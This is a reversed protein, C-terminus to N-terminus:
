ISKAEILDNFLHENNALEGLAFDNDHSAKQILDNLLRLSDQLINPLQQLLDENAIILCVLAHTKFLLQNLSLRQEMDQNILARFHDLIADAM